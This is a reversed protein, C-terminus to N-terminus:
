FMLYFTNLLNEEVFNIDICVIDNKRVLDRHFFFFKKIILFIIKIFSIIVM